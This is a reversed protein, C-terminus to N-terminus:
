DLASPRLLTAMSSRMLVMMQVRAGSYMLMILGYAGYKREMILRRFSTSGCVERRNRERFFFFARKLHDAASGDSSPLLSMSLMRSVTHLCEAELEYMMSVKVGGTRGDEGARDSHSM